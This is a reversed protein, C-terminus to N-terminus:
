PKPPPCAAWFQPLRDKLGRTDFTVDGAAGQNVRFWHWQMLRNIFNHAQQDVKSTYDVGAENSGYDLPEIM